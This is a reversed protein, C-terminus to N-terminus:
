PTFSHFVDRPAHHCQQNRADSPRLRFVIIRVPGDPHDGTGRAAGRVQRRAEHRLFEGLAPPLLRHHVITRTCAADDTHLDARAGRRVAVRQDDAMDARVGARLHQMFIEAVVRDPIELRYGIQHIHRHHKHHMGGHGSRRQFFKDGIRLRLAAFHIETRGARAGAAVQGALQEIEDGLRAHRMNRVLARAKGHGGIDRAFHLRRKQRRRSRLRVHLGPAQLRQHHHALRAEGARGIHRTGNLCTKGIEIRIRPEAQERRCARRLM